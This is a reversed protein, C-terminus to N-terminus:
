LDRIPNTNVPGFFAALRVASSALSAKGPFSRALQDACQQAARYTWTKLREAQNAMLEDMNPADDGNDQNAQCHSSWLVEGDEARVLCARAGYYMHYRNWNAMYYIVTCQGPM